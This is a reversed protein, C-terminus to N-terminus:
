AQLNRSDMRWAALSGSRLGTKILPSFTKSFPLMALSPMGARGILAKKQHAEIVAVYAAWANFKKACFVRM